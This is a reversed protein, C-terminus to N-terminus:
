YSFKDWEWKTANTFIKEPLGFRKCGDVRIPEKIEEYHKLRISYEDIILALANKENLNGLKDKFEELTNCSAIAEYIAKESEYSNKYEPNNQYRQMRLRHYTKYEELYDAM